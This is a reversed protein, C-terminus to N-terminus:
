AWDRFRAKVDSLHSFPPSYRQLLRLQFEQIPSPRLALVCQGNECIELPSCCLGSTTDCCHYAPACCYNGCGQGEPCVPTCSNFKFQGSPTCCVQVGLYHGNIPGYPTCPSCGQKCLPEGCQNTEYCGNWCDFLGGYDSESRGCDDLCNSLGECGGIPALAPGPGSVASMLFGLVINGLFRLLGRGPGTHVALFRSLRDLLKDM